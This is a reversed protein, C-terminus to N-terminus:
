IKMMEEIHLDNLIYFQSKYFELAEEINKEIGLHIANGCILANNPEPDHITERKDLYRLKFQYPCHKFCSVRSYSFQM